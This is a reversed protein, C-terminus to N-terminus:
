PRGSAPWRIPPSRSRTIRFRVAEGDREVVFAEEGREPHGAVTGYAFGFRSAEHVVAVIRCAALAHVGVLPLGLAVTTGITLPADHPHVLVGAARHPRWEVLGQVARRYSEDGDGLRM